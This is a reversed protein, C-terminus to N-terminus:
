AVGMKYSFKVYGGVNTPLTNPNEDFGDIHLVRWNSRYVWWLSRLSTNERAVKLLGESFFCADAGMVYTRTM